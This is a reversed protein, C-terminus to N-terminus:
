TITVTPPAVGVLVGAVGDYGYAYFTGEVFFPSKIKYTNQFEAFCMLNKARGNKTYCTPLLTLM